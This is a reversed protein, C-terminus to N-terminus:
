NGTRAEGIRRLKDPNRLFYIGQIAGNSVAFAIVTTGLAPDRIILSERGNISVIEGNTSEPTLQRALGLIVRAVAERGVVPRPFASVKGGGDAYGTVDEALLATLGAVNGEQVAQVFSALLQRHEGPSPKFRPRHEAIHKKARSFLQRCAAESKGLIAALESYDYDFVEHLLFTAREEPTLSEMLLLFALSLSEWEGVRESPDRFDPPCEARIPEPLWTGPYTEHRARASKLSDLCLRVVTTRLFAEPSKVTDRPAAQWRLYADQVIDEAESASGLMRYAIAFLKPSLAEFPETM